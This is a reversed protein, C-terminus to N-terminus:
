MTTLSILRNMCGVHALYLATHVNMSNSYAAAKLHDLLPGGTLVPHPQQTTNPQLNFLDLLKGQGAGAKAHYRLQRTSGLAALLSTAAVAGGRQSSAPLAGLDPHNRDGCGWCVTPLVPFPQPLGLLFPWEPPLFPWEPPLFPRLPWLPPFSSLRTSLGFGGGLAFALAFALLLGLSVFLLPPLDFLPRKSLASAPKWSALSSNTLLVAVGLGLATPDFAFGLFPYTRRIVGFISSNLLSQALREKLSLTSLFFARKGVLWPACNPLM